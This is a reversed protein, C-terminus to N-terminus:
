KVKQFTGPLNWIPIAKSSFQYTAFGIIKEGTKPVFEGRKGIQGLILQQSRFEYVITGPKTSELTEYKSGSYTFSGIPGLKIQNEFVLDGNEDFRGTLFYDGRTFGVLRNTDKVFEYKTPSEDASLKSIALLAVVITDIVKNL